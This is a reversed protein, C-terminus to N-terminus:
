LAMGISPTSASMRKISTKALSFGSYSPMENIPSYCGAIRPNRESNTLSRNIKHLIECMRLVVACAAGIASKVPIYALGHCGGGVPYSRGQTDVNTDNHLRDPAIAKHLQEWADCAQGVGGSLM